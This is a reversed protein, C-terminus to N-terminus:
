KRFTATWGGAPALHLTIIEHLSVQRTTHKYDTADRDANIGDAFSEMTMPEKLFDSLKLTLTRPTWNNMAAVYWVDGKRRAIAVYEGMEGSLPITEDFTTPVRAIFDTCEQNQEYHSPSDALMQLPAEFLTYMAMQHVRTGQSMPHNNNGFFNDRTANLMAGPTYDLPGPLMRLFPISVDYRPMDHIPGNGNRPEWKCNELGKVGEFNVVNPYARQVGSPKLGHYDVLLHHRAACAAIEYSSRIAEQDDRDFFDVKFGKVGAAAYYAMNREMDKILNRWSSWLIVGVQREKGYAVLEPICLEDYSYELLDEESSWGEDVIIYELGNNQAFDIYHKYTPTNIGARFDVGTLNWNNWWDWAVKGPKIWSTDTLRCSPALCWPTDTDLLQIDATSVLIMRWPLAQRPEIQAIHDARRTPLLNLRDFGGIITETPLPAFESNLTHARTLDRKLFMGPYNEVATEMIVAKMGGPLCIALPTIALSDPFLTYLPQEDYYSEFSFSYREGGRNDNVYPVFAQYDASFQYNSSENVVCLPKKSRSVLRYACGDNYARVELDFDGSCDLRMENYAENVM